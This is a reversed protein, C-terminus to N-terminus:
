LRKAKGNRKRQEAAGVLHDLSPFQLRPGQQVAHIPCLAVGQPFPPRHCGTRNTLQVGREVITACDRRLEGAFRSPNKLARRAHHHLWTPRMRSWTAKESTNAPLARGTRTAM